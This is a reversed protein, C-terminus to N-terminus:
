RNKELTKIQESLSTNLPTPIGTEEGYRAVIGCLSDIETTRDREIDQLMSSRHHFTDPLLKDYFLELFEEPKKWFLELRKARAVAFIERVIDDMMTRTEPDEGLAGYHVGRLAGLPNLACNYMLKAWLHKDIEETYECPVGAHNIERALDRAKDVVRPPQDALNFGPFGIMVPQTYVTIEISGPEIITIGFIVRGGLVHAHEATDAIEEVNGIGNQLSVLLADKKLLHKVQETAVRTDFSKVTIFIADFEGSANQTTPRTDIGTVQRDGWIGTIALGERAIADMHPKRGVLTVEHGADALFGGFASGVAGAGMVLLRM